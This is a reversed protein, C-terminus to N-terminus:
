QIQTLKIWTTEKMWMNVYFGETCERRDLTHWSWRIQDKQYERALRKTWCGRVNETKPVWIKWPIRKELVTLHLIEYGTKQPLFKNGGRWDQLSYSETYNCRGKIVSTLGSTHSVQPRATVHHCTVSEVGLFVSYDCFDNAIWDHLQTRKNRSM